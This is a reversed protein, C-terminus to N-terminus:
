RRSWRSVTQVHYTQPHADLPQIQSLRYGKAALRRGDRALTAIDSSVYLMQAPALSAMEDLVAPPLGSGPPDVVIMDPMVNLMPLVEEVQGEYLSVNDFEALNVIADAVADPNREVAVIEAANGALSATLTGVGSYLELVSEEGSLAGYALVTELIFEAAASNNLFYCGASVRFVREGAAQLLNNDGILNVAAGDPLLLAASVPFDTELLPPELDDIDLVALLEGEQGVRLTVERLGPLDLDLDQYLDLLESRLLFCTDIPMVQGLEPSWFGLRGDATQSFTASNAYAWAEPNAWIPSVPPDVFGGIRELQDRVIAEKYRLQQPYDIHQFHCGGCPGFHPCRAETRGPAAEIIEVLRGRAFRKKDEVITVKAKEGPITLPVFVVRQNEDRGLAAGGNAMDTLTLTITKM